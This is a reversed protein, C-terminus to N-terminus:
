QLSIIMGLVVSISMLVVHNIARGGGNQPTPASAKPPCVEPRYIIDPPKNQGKPQGYVVDINSGDLLVGIIKGADQDYEVCGHLEIDGGVNFLVGEFTGGKVIAEGQIVQLAVGDGTATGCVKITCGTGPVFKGGNITAKSGAQLVQVADGGKTTSERTADGGYVEVGAEFTATGPPYDSDRTTSITVGTGGMGLGGSIKGNLAIFTADDIRVADEGDDGSDPAVIAGNLLTLTTGNVVFINHADYNQGDIVRAEPGSFWLREGKVSPIISLLLTVVLLMSRKASAM